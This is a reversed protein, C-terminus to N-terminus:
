DVTITDSASESAVGNIKVFQNSRYVNLDDISVHKLGDIKIKAPDIVWISDNFIMESPKVDIDAVFNRDVFDYSLDAGMQFSGKYTRHRDINWDLGFDVHNDTATGSIMLALEGDKTPLSTTVFLRDDGTRGNLSALLSTGEILKNNQRIFPADINLFAMGERSDFSGEITMPYIVSVPLNLFDAIKETDTVTFNYSFRNTSDILRVDSASKELEEGSARQSADAVFAYRSREKNPNFTPLARYVLEKAAQAITNFKFDGIIEGSILESTVSISRPFDISSSEILIDKVALSKDMPNHFLIDAIHIAGDCRDLSEGHLNVDSTFSLSYNQYKKILGLAYLNIKRMDVTADLSREGHLISGRFSTSLDVDDSLV